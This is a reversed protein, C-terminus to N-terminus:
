PGARQDPPDPEHPRRRPDSLGRPRPAARPQRIEDPDLVGSEIALKNAQWRELPSGRLLDSMDLVLVHNVAAASSFLSRRAEGPDQAGVAAPHQQRVLPQRKRTPSPRNHSYDQVLPPPVGYIRCLRWASFKRSELLEADEPSQRQDIQVQRGPRPRDRRRCQAAGLVAAALAGAAPRFRRARDQGRGRDHRQSQHLQAVHASFEALAQANGVVGAARQLRSVGVPGGDDNRDRLHVGARAAPAPHRRSGRRLRRLRHPPRAARRDLGTGPSRACSSWAAPTTPVIESQGRQRAAPGLRGDVRVLGGLDHAANPGRDIIRQLPHTPVEVRRDGEWRYVLAPLSASRAPSSRSAPASPRWASSPARPADGAPRQM